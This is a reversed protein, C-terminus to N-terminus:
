GPDGGAGSEGSGGEVAAGREAGDDLVVAVSGAVGSSERAEGGLDRGEAGGEFEDGGADAAV